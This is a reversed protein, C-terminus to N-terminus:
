RRNGKLAAIEDPDPRDPAQPDDDDPEDGGIRPTVVFAQHGAAVEERVREWTRVLFPHQELAPVVHTVIPARGKRLETLTSVELDGLVTVAVTRAILTVTMVLVHPVAEGSQEGKM